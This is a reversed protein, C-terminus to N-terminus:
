DPATEGSLLVPMAPHQATATHGQGYGSSSFGPVSRFLHGFDGEGASVRKTVTKFPQYPGSERSGAFAQFPPPVVAM